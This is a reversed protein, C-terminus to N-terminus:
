NILKYLFFLFISFKIKNRPKRPKCIWGTETVNLLRLRPSSKSKLPHYHISQVGRWLSNRGKEREREGERREEGISQIHFISNAKYDSCFSDFNFRSLLPLYDFCTFFPPPSFIYFLLSRFAYFFDSTPLLSTSNSFLFLSRGDTKDRM